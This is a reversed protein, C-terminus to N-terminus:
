RYDQTTRIKDAFSVASGYGTNGYDEVMTDILNQVGEQLDTAQKKCIIM